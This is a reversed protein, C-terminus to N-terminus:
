AENFFFHRDEEKHLNYKAIHYNQAPITDSRLFYWSEDFCFESVVGSFDKNYCDQLVKMNTSPFSNKFEKNFPPQFYRIMSAEYITIREHENTNFLKDTGQRIRELGNERNEAFPNFHTIMRNNPEVEILLVHLRHNDSKQTLSIRQLTEHKRLRELAHRSGKEGYAQGIYLVDFNLGGCRHHLAVILDNDSPGYRKGEEDVLFSLDDVQCFKLHPPIPFRVDYVTDSVYMDFVMSGNDEYVRDIGTIPMNGIMYIHCRRLHEMGISAIAADDYLMHAPIMYHYLAYMNLAHEVDYLKQGMLNQLKESNDVM